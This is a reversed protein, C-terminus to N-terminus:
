EIRLHATMCDRCFPLMHYKEKSHFGRIKEMKHSNWCEEITNLNLNGLLYDDTDYSRFPKGCPVVNGNYRVIMLQWTRNCVFDKKYSNANKDRNDFKKFDVLTQFSIVNVKDKWFEYFNKKQHKNNHQVVFSVRTRINRRKLKDKLKLFALTNNVVANFDGGPRVENYVEENTADISFNIRTIGANILNESTEETLLNANTHMGIDIIGADRAEKIMDSLRPNILPEAEHALLIAPMKHRAANNIIRSYLKREILGREGYDGLVERACVPCKLNCYYSVEIELCLPFDFLFRKAAMIWKRRYEQYEETVYDM